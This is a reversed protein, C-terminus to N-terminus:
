CKLVAFPSRLEKDPNLIPYGAQKMYILENGRGLHHHLYELDYGQLHLTPEPRFIRSLAAKVEDIRMVDPPNALWDALSHKTINKDLGFNYFTNFYLWILYIKTIEAQDYSYCQYIMEFTEGDPLIMTKTKIGHRDKYDQKAMPTNPLVYLPYSRAFDVGLEQHKFLTDTWSEATEGPLGLILESNVSVNRLEGMISLLNDTRINKRDIVDLVEPTLTQLSIKVNRKKDNFHDMVLNMIKPMHKSGNKTFGAFTLLMDDRQKHDVIFQVFDLDRQYIGYNADLLELRKPRHQLIHLLSAYVKNDELKTIKSRSVGGWDCFSCSYPCGRNTEIAVCVDRQMIADLIGDTYPTPIAYTSDASPDLLREFALEGPGTIYHDVYPRRFSELDEEPVNPGGYVVIGDPRYGKYLQAIRDNAVQNWVYCTLGLLDATRLKDHFQQDDWRHRYEPELFQYADAIRPNKMCHSILCAVPYPAWDEYVSSITALLIKRKTACSGNGNAM